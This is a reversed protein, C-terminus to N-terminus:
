TFARAEIRVPKVGLIWGEETEVRERDMEFLGELVIRVPQRERRHALRDLDVQALRQALGVQRRQRSRLIKEDHSAFHRWHRM